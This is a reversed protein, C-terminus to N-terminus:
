YFIEDYLPYSSVIGICGLEWFVSNLVLRPLIYLPDIFYFLIFFLHISDHLLSLM